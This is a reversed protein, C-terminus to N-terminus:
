KIPLNEIENILIHLLGAQDRYHEYAKQELRRKKFQWFRAGDRLTIAKEQEKECIALRDTLGKSVKQRFSRVLQASLNQCRQVTKKPLFPLNSQVSGKYPGRKVESFGKPALEQKILAFALQDWQEVPSFERADLSDKHKRSDPAFKTKTETM